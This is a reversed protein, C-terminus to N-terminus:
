PASGPRGPAGSPPRVARGPDRRVIAVFNALMRLGVPGSKEPHFQVGYVHERAVISAFPQGHTTVAVTDAGIPVAYAHVFYVSAGEPVGEVIPAACRLALTNWGIHPVKVPGALRTSRGPFLGLGPVAPAEESGEFLWQMGLCIGLLPRGDALAARVAERWEIGLAATASFHGVGPVVIGAAGRLDDPRRALVAEAGVHAFAKLVSTLNGAGYDVIAIRDANM